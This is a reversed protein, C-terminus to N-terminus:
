DDLIGELADHVAYLGEFNTFYNATCTIGRVILEPTIGWSKALLASERLGETNGTVTHHRLMLYPVVQKPLTKIVVEWKSRNVKVWEPHYKMGWKVSNPLYGITKEYWDTLSKRDGDTLERTTLDLGCKFADQDVAWGDPWVLESYDNPLSPPDGWVALLHGIAHYTHGLGRMGGYLQTFMVLEMLQARTCGNRRMNDSENRIGTEWGLMTYTHINQIALLVVAVRDPNGFLSFGWRSRKWYDPAYDLMLAESYVNYLPRRDRWLYSLREGLEEPTVTDLKTMDIQLAPRSESM